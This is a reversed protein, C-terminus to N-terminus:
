RLAVGGSQLESVRFDNLSTGGRTEPGGFGEPRVSWDIRGDSGSRRWRHPVGILVPCVVSQEFSM